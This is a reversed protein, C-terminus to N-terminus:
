TDTDESRAAEETGDVPKDIGVLGDILDILDGVEDPDVDSVRGIVGVVGRVLRERLQVLRSKLVLEVAGVGVGPVVPVGPLLVQSVEGLPQELVPRGVAHTAAVRRDLFRELSRGRARRRGRPHALATVDRELGRGLEGVCFVHRDPGVPTRAVQPCPDLEGLLTVSPSPRDTRKLRAPVVVPQDHVHLGLLVGPVGRAHRRFRRPALEEHRAIRCPHDRRHRFAFTAHDLLHGVLTIDGTLLAGRQDPSWRPVVHVPGLRVRHEVELVTTSLGVGVPGLHPLGRVDQVVMEPVPVELRHDHHHAVAVDTVEGSLQHLM